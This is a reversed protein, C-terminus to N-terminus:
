NIKKEKDLDRVKKELISTFSILEQIRDSMDSITLSMHLIYILLFSIISIIVLFSADTIGLFSAVFKYVNELVVFSLMMLGVALWVLCYFPRISRRRVLNLFITIFCLGLITIIVKLSFQM